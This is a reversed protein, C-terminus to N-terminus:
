YTVFTIPKDSYTLMVEMQRVEAAVPVDNPLFMSMIFDVHPMADAVRIGDIVDQLVAKRREGTRHDLIHLCDSGTGYTSIRDGLPM